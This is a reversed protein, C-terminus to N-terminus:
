CTRLRAEGFLAGDPSMAETVGDTFALLLDGPALEVETAPFALGPQVGVLTGESTVLPRPADGPRALLPSLHGGSACTLWGTEVDLVACFLTVFMSSPNDAALAENVRALIEDPRGSLRALSRILTLTM